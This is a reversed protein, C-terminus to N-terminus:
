FRTVKGQTARVAPHLDKIADAVVLGTSKSWSNVVSAKDRGEIVEVTSVIVESLLRHDPLLILREGMIDRWRDINSQGPRNVLLHFVEYFKSAAKYLSKSSMTESVDDNFIKKIANEPLSDHPPEDGITFLYGKEGRKEFSDTSTHFAAFYWALNYSEGGNGGGNSEIWLAKLQELMIETDSEFQSVQLPSRDSFADGIGMFMLQPDTIPKRQYIETFLTGLGTTGLEHALM